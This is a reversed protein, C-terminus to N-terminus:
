QKPPPAPKYDDGKPADSKPEGSNANAGQRLCAEYADRQARASSQRSGTPTTPHEKLAEARCRKALEVSIASAPSVVGAVVMVAATTAWVLATAIRM